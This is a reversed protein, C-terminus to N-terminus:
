LRWGRGVFKQTRKFDIMSGRSPNPLLKKSTILDFQLKSIWYQDDKISYWPMCHIYDFQKRFEKDAMLIVQINDQFTIAQTTVLKGDVVTPMMYKLNVDKVLNLHDRVVLEKFTSVDHMDSLYIDLDNPSEGHFFSASAGGTLIGKKLYTQLVPPYSNIKSKLIYGISNKVSKVLEKDNIDFNNM